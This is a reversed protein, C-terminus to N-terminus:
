LSQNEGNGTRKGDQLGKQRRSIGQNPIAIIGRLAHYTLNLIHKNTFKKVIRFGVDIVSRQKKM